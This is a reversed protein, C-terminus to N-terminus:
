MRMANARAGAAPGPRDQAHQVTVQPRGRWREGPYRLSSSCKTMTSAPICATSIPAVTSASCCAEGDIVFCNNRNRLAAGRDASVSREHGDRTFLRGRKGGRQVVLRYGNHESEHVREPRDPVKPRNTLSATFFRRFKLINEPNCPGHPREGRSSSMGLYRTV